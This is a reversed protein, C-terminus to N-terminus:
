VFIERLMAVDVRREPDDSPRREPHWMIGWVPADAHEVAEVIEDRWGIAVLPAAVETAAWRHYCNVRRYRGEILAEHEVAVHGEVPELACGHADLVLQMGRCVGLVPRGMRGAWDLLARETKERWPADGGYRVLNEGGTLLVGSLGLSEVVAVAREPANPVPVGIVGCDALFAHWRPDLGEYRVGFPDPPLVRQTVAIAIM